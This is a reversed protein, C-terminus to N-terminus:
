VAQSAKIASIYFQFIVDALLDSFDFKAKIASIYFQFRFLCLIASFINLKLRVLISNFHASSVPLVSSGLAKIASIYFQFGHVRLINNNDDLKLRVLISNFNLVTNCYLM